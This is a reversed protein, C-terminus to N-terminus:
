RREALAREILTRLADIDVPKRLVERIGAAAIEEPSLEEGYGTYLIPRADRHLARVQRALEIGTMGPMTYDFVYIDYARGREALRHLADAGNACAHATLGWDQLRDVMYERVNADDEVLLVAGHMEPPTVDAARGSAADRGTQEATEALPLWLCFRSGRGLESEVRIHGGYEHVIGHVTALGMGSGKGVEKTSFFPEFIRDLVERSMGIGNDSVCLEVYRGAVPKRCSSCICPTACEIQSLSIELEGSGAMADRANICLNLLIQEIHVPDAMVAPLTEALKLRTQITSPLMSEMLKVCEKILPALQLPRPEGRQGRSFTLMQQILDRARTASKQIRDLYRNLTEDRHKREWEQAMVVYGMIGTLINNFDHAIGGTLHGIAEMKQAQRLQAESKRLEEEKKKAETINRLVLLVHRQGQFTAPVGRMDLHFVEGNKHTAIAEDQYARGERVTALLKMLKPMSEPPVFEVLPAKLLQERTMGHLNCCAQNVDVLKGDITWLAMGDSAANFMVRYQEERDALQQEALKDNTIDRMILLLHPENGYHVPVGHVKAEFLTGDKRQAKAESELSHGASAAEFFAWCRLHSDPHVFQFSEAALLEERSYGHLRCFAPNAEMVRGDPTCLALGDVSANFITHYREESARLAEEATKRETIDRTFVLLRDVGGITTRKIRVEDWRLSGDKNRAHWEILVPEGALARSLHRMADVETYPPVGESLDAITLALMEARTYGYRECATHNVDVIAGTAIDHVFVADETSELLSRYSTESRTHAEIAYRRELEAAARVSFIRLLQETLEADHLPKRDMVVMLGLARGRSDFLSIGAYGEAKLQKPHPGAFMFQVREPFHRFSAGLVQECPTGALDYEFTPMPQGDSVMAIVRITKSQDGTLEGILAYNVDLAKAIHNVLYQFISEGSVGAVGDAAFRLARRLADEHRATSPQVAYSM